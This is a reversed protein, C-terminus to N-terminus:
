SKQLVKGGNSSESPQQQLEGAWKSRLAELFDNPSIGLKVAMEALGDADPPYMERKTQILKGLASACGELTKPQSRFISTNLIAIANDLAQMEDVKPLHTATAIAGMANADANEADKKDRKKSWERETSLKKVTSRGVQFEDAIANLGPRPVRDLYAKEMAQIIRPDLPKPM